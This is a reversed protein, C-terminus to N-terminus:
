LWAILLGSAQLLLSKLYTAGTSKAEKTMLAGLNKSDSTM